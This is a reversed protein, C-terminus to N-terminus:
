PQICRAVVHNIGATQTPAAVNATISDVARLGHFVLAPYNIAEIVFDNAANAHSSIINGAALAPTTMTM